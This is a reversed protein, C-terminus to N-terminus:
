RSTKTSAAFGRIPRPWGQRPPHPFAARTGRNKWGSKHASYGTARPSRRRDAAPLYPSVIFIMVFSRGQTRAPGTPTRTGCWGATNGSHLAPRQAAAPPYFYVSHAMALLWDPTGLGAFNQVSDMEYLVFAGSVKRIPLTPPQKKSLASVARSPQVVRSRFSGAIPRHQRRHAAFNQGTLNRELPRRM